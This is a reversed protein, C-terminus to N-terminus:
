IHILSLVPAESYNYFDTGWPTAGIEATWELGALTFPVTASIYCDTKQMDLGDEDYVKKAM